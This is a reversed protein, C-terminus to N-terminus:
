VELDYLRMEQSLVVGLGRFGLGWFSFRLGQLIMRISVKISATLLVKERSHLRLSARLPVRLPARSSM